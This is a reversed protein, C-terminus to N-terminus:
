CHKRTISLTKLHSLTDMWNNRQQTYRKDKKQVVFLKKLINTRCAFLIISKWSIIIKNFLCCLWKEVYFFWFSCPFLYLRNLNIYKSLFPYYNCTWICNIVIKGGFSRSSLPRRPSVYWVSLFLNLFHIVICFSNFYKVLHMFHLFISIMSLTVYCTSTYSVRKREFSGLCTIISNYLYAYFLWRM